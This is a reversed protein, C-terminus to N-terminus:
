EKSHSLDMKSSGLPSVIVIPQCQCVDSGMSQPKLSVIFVALDSAKEPRVSSEFWLKVDWWFRSKVHCVWHPCIPNWCACHIPQQTSRMGIPTFIPEVVTCGGFHAAHLSPLCCRVGFFPDFVMFDGELPM